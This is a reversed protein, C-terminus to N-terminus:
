SRHMLRHCDECLLKVDEDKEHGINAYSLHHLHLVPPAKWCRECRHGRKALIAGRFTRWAKSNIYAEYKRWWASQTPSKPKPQRKIRQGRRPRLFARATTLDYADESLWDPSKQYRAM